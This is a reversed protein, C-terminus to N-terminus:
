RVEKKWRDLRAILREQIRGALRDNALKHAFDVERQLVYRALRMWKEKTKVDSWVPEPDDRWLTYLLEAIAEENDM